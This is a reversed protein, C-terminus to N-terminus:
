GSLWLCPAYVAIARQQCTVDAGPGVPTASPDAMPPQASVEGPAIDVGGSQGRCAGEDRGISEGLGDLQSLLRRRLVDELPHHQRLIAEVQRQAIRGEM